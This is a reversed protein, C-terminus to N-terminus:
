WDPDTWPYCFDVEIAYGAAGSADTWDFATERPYQDFVARDEPALLGPPAAVESAAVGVGIRVASRRSNNTRATDPLAEDPDVIVGLYYVGPATAAPVTLSAGTVATAGDPDAPSPVAVLDGIVIDSASIQADPSLYLRLPYQAVPGRSFTQVGVTVVGGPAVAGPGEFPVPGAVLDVPAPATTDGCGVGAAVLMTTLVRARRTAGPAADTRDPVPSVAAVLM